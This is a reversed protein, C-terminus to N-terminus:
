LLITHPIKWRWCERLSPDIGLSRNEHTKKLISLFDNQVPRDVHMYITYPDTFDASVVAEKSLERLYALTSIFCTEKNEIANGITSTVNLVYHKSLRSYDDPKIVAQQASERRQLFGSNM